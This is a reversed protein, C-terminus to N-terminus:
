RVVSLRGNGVLGAPSIVRYHYVGTVLAATGFDMRQTEASVETRMVEEGITNFLIFAGLEALPKELILTAEYQAPNPVVNGKAPANAFVIWLICPILTPLGICFRQYMLLSLLGISSMKDQQTNAPIMRFFM